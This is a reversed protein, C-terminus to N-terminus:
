GGRAGAQRARPANSVTTAIAIADVTPDDLLEAYRTTRSVAPYRRAIRSLAEEDLDCAYAVDAEPLEYLNRVLNPGWYGLGVVGIRM